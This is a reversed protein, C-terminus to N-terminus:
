AVAELSGRGQAASRVAEDEYPDAARREEVLRVTPEVAREGRIEMAAERPMGNVRHADQEERRTVVVVSPASLPVPQAAVVEEAEIMTPTSLQDDVGRTSGRVQRRQRVLDHVGDHLRISWPSGGRSYVTM